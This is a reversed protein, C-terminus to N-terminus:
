VEPQGATSHPDPQGVRWAAAPPGATWHAEPEDVRWATTPQGATWHPEPPGVALQLDRTPAPPGTSTTVAGTPTISGLFRKATQKAVTGAATIAGAFFKATARRISGAPAIAGTLAKNTQRTLTGTPTIAGAFSRLAAKLTALTGAPTVGGAMSKATRRTLAGAPTITGAPHKGTQRTLAGSPTIAGPLAKATQRVLTSTPTITGSVSQNYQVPGGGGSPTYAFAMFNNANGASPTATSMTVSGAPSTVANQIGIYVRTDPGAGIGTSLLATQGTGATPNAQVNWDTGAMEARANNTVTTVALSMVAATNSGEVLGEIGSCGAVVKTSFGGANAATANGVVTVTISGPSSPYAKTWLAVRGAQSGSDPKSRNGQFTWGTAGAISDTVTEAGPNAGSSTDAFVWLRVLSGAPPTFAACTAGTTTWNTNVSIFPPSSADADGFAM